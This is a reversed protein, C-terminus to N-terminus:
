FDAIQYVGDRKGEGRKHIKTATADTTITTNVLAIAILEAKDEWVRQTSAAKNGLNKV